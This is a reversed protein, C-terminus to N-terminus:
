HLADVLEVVCPAAINRYLPAEADELEFDTPWGQPDPMAWGWQETLVLVRGEDNHIGVTLRKLQIQGRRGQAVRVFGYEAHFPGTFVGGDIELQQLGDSDTFVLQLSARRWAVFAVGSLVVAPGGILLLPTLRAGLLVFVLLIATPIWLLLALVVLPTVVKQVGPKM